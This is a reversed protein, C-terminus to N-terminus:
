TVNNVYMNTIGTFSTILSVLKIIYKTSKTILSYSKKKISCFSSSRWLLAVFLELTWEHHLCRWMFSFFVSHNKQTAGGVYLNVIITVSTNLRVLKLYNVPIYILFYVAYFINILIEHPGHLFGYNCFVVYGALTPITPKASSAAKISGHFVLFYKM